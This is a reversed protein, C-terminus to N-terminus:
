SETMTIVGFIAVVYFYFKKVMKLVATLINCLYASKNKNKSFLLTYCHKEDLDIIIKM